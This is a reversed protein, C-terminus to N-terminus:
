RQPQPGTPTRATAAAHGGLREQLCARMAHLERVPPSQAGWHTSLVAEAKRIAGLSEPVACGNFLVQALKFLEQGAEISSPGYRAEVVQISSSLHEAAEAWKGLTVYARALHDEIEGVMLHDPSLFREADLRCKLLLEVSQGSQGQGLRELAAETRLQLGRLRRLFGDEPVPGECAGSSCRLLGEGQMPMRCAPCCFGSRQRAARERSSPRLEDLCPQCRCEFFYQALLRERREAAGMRSRHPGYCHLIEQGRPIPQLARVEATTSSFTVSTNPDCSHNLLSLVPFLAAALRVQERSTVPGGGSGSERLATIAQSNSQLQLMHRLVAEGFVMLGPSTEAASPEEQSEPTREGPLLASRGADGLGRCLAAATLGGLFRAEPSHKETHPLLSFVARYSGRYRGDADCGPIPASDGEAEDARPGTAPEEVDRGGPPKVLSSVEAVGAVLVARFAVHCFVGLTLLLGGLSCERRHYSTWATEACTRSCYRAYSCGRCPVSALLPSLCRHCHLDETELPKDSTPEACGRLLFSEGPRLVSVFAEERVLLQGPPIDEAAILHRGKGTSFRLSVSPSAHSVKSNEEWHSADEQTGDRATPQCASSPRERGVGVKLQRFKHLLTQHSTANSGPDASMKTELHGLTDSAEQLKGLSLLCEAKRLLIKPCLRDPYGEAQARAIDELCLELQGLHFLAASRNAYCVAAEPSGAESHSLATSYLVLAAAYDKKQFRENGREKYSPVRQPEKQVHYYESLSQLYEEDEPRFLTFSLFIIDRLSVTDCLQKKLSPELSAWKQSVYAKWKEVPLDM